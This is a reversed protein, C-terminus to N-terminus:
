ADASPSSARRAAEWTPGMGKLAGGLPLPKSDLILPRTDPKAAVMKEVAAPQELAFSVSNGVAFCVLAVAIRAAIM